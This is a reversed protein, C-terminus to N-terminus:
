AVPEVVVLATNSEVAQGAAVHIAQVVGDCPSRFENEMKMAEVVLLVQGQTVEDGVAVLVRNVVGPMPTSVLGEAGGGAQSLAKSRPDVVTARLAHGGVQVAAHDGTVRCGVSRGEAGDRLLWEADGLAQGRLARAPGADVSVTWGGEARQVDVAYTRGEIQVEYIM